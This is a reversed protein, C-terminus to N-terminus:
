LDVHVKLPKSAQKNKIKKFFIQSMLGERQTGWAPRSNATYCLNAQFEHYDEQRLGIIACIHAMM